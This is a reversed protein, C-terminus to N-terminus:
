GQLLILMKKIELANNIIKKFYGKGLNFHPIEHYNISLTILDLQRLIAQPLKSDLLLGNTHLIININYNDLNNKLETINKQMSPFELTPEGGFFYVDVQSDGRDKQTRGIFSILDEINYTIGLPIDFTKCDMLVSCYKCMLNCDNTLYVYYEM